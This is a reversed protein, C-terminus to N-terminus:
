AIGGGDEAAAGVIPNFDRDYRQEKLNLVGETLARHVLRAARMRTEASGDGFNEEYPLNPHMAVELFAAESPMKKLDHLLRRYMLLGLDTIHRRPGTIVGMIQLELLAGSLMIMAQQRPTLDGLYEPRLAFKKQQAGFMENLDAFSKSM